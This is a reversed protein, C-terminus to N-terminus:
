KNEFDKKTLKKVLNFLAWNVSFNTTEELTGKYFTKISNISFKDAISLIEQYGDNVKKATLVLVIDAGNFSLRSKCLLSNTEVSCEGDKQFDVGSMQAEDALAHSSIPVLGEYLVDTNDFFEKLIKGCTFPEVIDIKQRNRKLLSVIVEVLSMESQSYIDNLFLRGIQAEADNIGIEDINKTLFIDCLLDKEVIKCKETNINNEQLIRKVTRESKGFLRFLSVKEQNNIQKLYRDFCNIYDIELPIYLVNIGGFLHICDDMLIEREASFKYSLNIEFIEIDKKECFIILNEKLLKETLEFNYNEQISFSLISCANKNASSFLASLNFFKEGKAVSKSYVLVNFKM